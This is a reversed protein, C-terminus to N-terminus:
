EAQRLLSKCANAFADIQEVSDLCFMGPVPGKIHSEAWDTRGIVTLFPGAAEDEVRVIVAEADFAAPETVPSLSMVIETQIIRM